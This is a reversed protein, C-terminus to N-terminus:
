KFNTNEIQEANIKCLIWKGLERVFRCQVPSDSSEYQQCKLLTQMTRDKTLMTKFFSKYEYLDDDDDDDLEFQTSKSIPKPNSAM